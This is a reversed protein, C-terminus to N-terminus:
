FLAHLTHPIFRHLHLFIDKMLGRTLNNKILNSSDSKDLNLKQFFYAKVVNQPLNAECLFGVGSVFSPRGHITKTAYEALKQLQKGSGFKLLRDFLGFRLTMGSPKTAPPLKHGHEEALQPSGMRESLNGAPQPTTLTFQFVQSDGGRTMGGQSIGILVARPFEVLPDKALQELAALAL